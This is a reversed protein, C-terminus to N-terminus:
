AHKLDYSRATQFNYRVGTLEESVEWLRAAADTDRGHAAIHGPAPPGNLEFIRSPAWFSGAGAQLDTAARLTPLAGDEAKMAFFPNLFRAAGATRQLDTATWGPHAATVIPASATV